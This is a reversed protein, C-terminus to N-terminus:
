QHKHSHIQLLLSPLIEADLRGCIQIIPHGALQQLRSSTRRRKCGQHIQFMILYENPDVVEDAFRPGRGVLIGENIAAWDELIKVATAAADADGALQWKLSLQYAAACDHFFNTYNNHIGPYYLDRIGADDWRGGGDGWNCKRCRPARPNKVPSAKYDNGSFGSTLLKQYADAWPQQGLHAKTYAIDAASHLM